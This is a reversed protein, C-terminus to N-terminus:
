HDRHQTSSLAEILREKVEEPNKKLQCEWIILVRWGESELSCYVKRDREINKEFKPIWYEQNTKPSPLNCYPCRHWFCGNVFIAIKRGPYSIDPHGAVKNWQLRYGPYGAERLIKRVTIEPRTNKGKNARMVNITAQSSPSPYPLSKYTM